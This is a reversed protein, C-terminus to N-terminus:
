TEDKPFLFSELEADTPDLGTAMKHVLARNSADIIWKAVARKKPDPIQKELWARYAREVQERIPSTKM